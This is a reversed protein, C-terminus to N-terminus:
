SSIEGSKYFWKGNEKIFSSKESFSADSGSQRLQATFTVTASEDGDVFEDITLHDFNTSKSFQLISQKWKERDHSFEPHEAHTTEIIYDALGLAYAAYRSRMLRMANEPLAGEHYPLCCKHYLAKSACPCKEFKKM